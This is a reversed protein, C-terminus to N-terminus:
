IEGRKQGLARKATPDSPESVAASARIIEINTGSKVIQRVTWLGKKKTKIMIKCTKENKVTKRLKESYKVQQGKQSLKEEAEM